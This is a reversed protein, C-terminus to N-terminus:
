RFIRDNETTKKYLKDILVKATAINRKMEAMSLTKLNYRDDSIVFKDKRIFEVPSQKHSLLLDKQKRIFAFDDETMAYKAALRQKMFLLQAELTTPFPPIRKFLREYELVARIILHMAKLVNDLVQILLKPDNVVQYTMVLMHDAVQIKKKADERLQQFPEM